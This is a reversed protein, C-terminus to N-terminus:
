KKVPHLYHYKPVIKLVLIFAFLVAFGCMVSETAGRVWPFIIYLIALPLMFSLYSIIFWFLLRKTATKKHIEHMRELAEWIGLLLFGFYYFGYFSYLSRSTDFIVYNGGCIAGSIAKPVFLFYVTYAFALLYGIILFYTKHTMLSILYLSAVPLLTIAVFGIKSWVLSCPECHNACIQYEAVQFIALLVITLGAVRGFATLRYRIFTYIALTVEVLFTILMIEPTFCFFCDKKTLIKKFM